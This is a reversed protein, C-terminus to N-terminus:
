VAGEGCHAIHGALWHWLAPAWPREAHLRWGDGRRMVAVPLGAFLMRASELPGGPPDDFPHESGLSMLSAAAPGTVDICIIGDGLVSCVTGDADDPAHAADGILLASDPAIRLAYVPADCAERPGVARAVGAHALAAPLGRGSIRWVGPPASATVRIGPGELRAQRWDPPPSWFASRDFM